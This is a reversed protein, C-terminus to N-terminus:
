RQGGRHRVRLAVRRRGRRLARPAALAGRADSAPRRGARPVVRGAFRAPVPLPRRHAGGAPAPGRAGRVDGRPHLRTSCWTAPSPGLRPGRRACSRGCSTRSARSRASARRLGRRGSRGRAGASQPRAGRAPAGSPAYLAIACREVLWGEGDHLAAIPAYRLVGDLSWLLTTARAAALDSAVPGVLTRYMAQAEPRPDRSPDQPAERLRQVQQALEARPIALERAVRRGPTVVLVRYRDAAVLTQLAAAGPGLRRLEADMAQVEPLDELRTPAREHSRFSQPLLDLNARLRGSEEALKGRLGSARQAEELGRARKAEAARLERGLAGVREMAEEIGRAQDAERRTLAVLGLRPSAGGSELFVGAQDGKLLALVQQAEPLRGEALLLDALGRYAAEVTALFSTRAERDLTGIRSRIRQATNVAQKGFFIALAPRRFGAWTSM